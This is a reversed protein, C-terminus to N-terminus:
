PLVVIRLAILLGWGESPSPDTYVFQAYETTPGGGGPVDPIHVESQSDTPFLLTTGPLQPVITGNMWLLATEYHSTVLFAQQHPPAGTLVIAADNWRLSGGTMTM